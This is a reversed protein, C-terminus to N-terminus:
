YQCFLAIRLRFIFFFEHSSNLRLMKLFFSTKNQFVSGILIAMRVLCLLKFYYNGM